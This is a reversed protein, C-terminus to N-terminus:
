GREVGSTGRLVTHELSPLELLVARRRGAAAVNFHKGQSRFSEHIHGHVHALVARRQLLSALSRSGVAQGSYTRDLIGYAPSHTVLVTGEDLLPELAGVDKEIEAEPKEFVGGIFPLSYQYGVFNYGGAELRRGHLSCIRDDEYEVAVFDNNGMLYFVPASLKKLWPVIFEQIQKQQEDQWGGLLLDGALLILEPRNDRAVQGLWEYVTPVGHLDAAALIRMDDFNGCLLSSLL